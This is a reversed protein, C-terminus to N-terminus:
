SYEFCILCNYLKTFTLFLYISFGNVSIFLTLNESRRFKSIKLNASYTDILSVYSNCSYEIVALRLHVLIATEASQTPTRHLCCYGFATISISNRILPFSISELCEIYIYIYTKAIGRTAYLLRTVTRSDYLTSIIWQYMPISKDNNPFLM